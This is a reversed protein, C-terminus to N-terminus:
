PNLLPGKTPVNGDPWTEGAAHAASPRRLKSIRGQKMQEAAEVPPPLSDDDTIWHVVAAEDCSNALRPMAKLHPPANRFKRMSAEDNWDTVTWLALKTRSTALYGGLFGPQGRLQRKSRWTHLAVVALAGLNRPRLRTVSAFPMRSGRIWQSVLYSYGSALSAALTQKGVMQSM